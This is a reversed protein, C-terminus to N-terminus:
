PPQLVGIEVAIGGWQQATQTVTPTTDTTNLNHMYYLGQATTNFGNDFDEVYVTEPTGANGNNDVNSLAMMVASKYKLAALTISPDAIANTGRIFQLVAGSGSTGSTVVNTFLGLYMNCGTQAAAFDVIQGASATDANTMTRWLSFSMAGANFNTDSVKVWACGNGTVNTVTAGGAVQGTIAILALTNKRIVAASNTYLRQGITNNYSGGATFIIQPWKRAAAAGRFAITDVFTRQAMCLPALLLLILTLRKM